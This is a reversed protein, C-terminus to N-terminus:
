KENPFEVQVKVLFAVQGAEQFSSLKNELTGSYLARIWQGSHM